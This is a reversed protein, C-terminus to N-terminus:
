HWTTSPNLVCVIHINEQKQFRNIRVPPIFNPDFSPDITLPMIETFEDSEDSKKDILRQFDFNNSNRKYLNHYSTCTSTLSNPTTCMIASSTSCRAKHYKSISNEDNKIEEACDCYKPLMYNSNNFMTNVGFLSETSSIEVRFHLFYINKDTNNCNHFISVVQRQKNSKSTKTSGTYNCENILKHM